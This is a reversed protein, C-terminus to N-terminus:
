NQGPISGPTQMKSMFEETNVTKAESSMGNCDRNIHSGLSPESRKCKVPAKAGEASALQPDSAACGALALVSMGTLLASFLKM